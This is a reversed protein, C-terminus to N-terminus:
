ISLPIDEVWLDNGFHIQTCNGLKFLALAEVKRWVRSIGIWPSELSNDSKGVTHWKFPEKVHISRIVQGWLSDEDEMFRWGWKAILATNKNILGGLGLGGDLQSRTFRDWKM